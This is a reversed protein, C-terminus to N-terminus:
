GKIDMEEIAVEDPDVRCLRELDSPQRNLRAIGGAVIEEDLKLIMWALIGPEGLVMQCCASLSNLVILLM